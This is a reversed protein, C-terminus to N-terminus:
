FQNLFREIKNLAEEQTHGREILYAENHRVLAIVGETAPAVLAIGEDLSAIVAAPFWADLAARAAFLDHKAAESALQFAHYEALREKFQAVSDLTIFGQEPQYIPAAVQAGKLRFDEATAAEFATILLEFASASMLCRATFTLESPLVVLMM